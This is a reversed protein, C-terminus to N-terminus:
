PEDTLLEAIRAWVHASVTMGDHTAAIEVHDADADLCAQWSVVSDTRSYLSLYRVEASVPASVDIKPEADCAGRMCRYSFMGPVGLSGLTGVAHVLARNTKSLAMQNLVPSGLTILTEILDPRRAALARGFTGGRSHGIVLARRGTAEVAAELRAELVPVADHLCNVNAHMGSRVTEWGGLRLWQAMRGLTADGVLFGPILLAPRGDGRPPLPWYAPNWTSRAEHFLAPLKGRGSAPPAFVVADRAHAM